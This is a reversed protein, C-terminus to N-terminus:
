LRRLLLFYREQNKSRRTCGQDEEHGNGNQLIPLDHDQSCAQSAESRIRRGNDCRCGIHRSEENYEEYNLSWFKSRSRECETYPMSLFIVDSLWNGTSIDLCINRALNASYDAEEEFKQWRGHRNAYSRQNLHPQGMEQYGM